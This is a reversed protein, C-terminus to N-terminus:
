AKCRWYRDGDNHDTLVICNNGAANTCRSFFPCEGVQERLKPSEKLGNEALAAILAQTYPHRPDELVEATNGSEMIFGKCLVIIKETAKAVEIDHTIIIKAAKPFVNNITQLFEEKSEKDLGNTPEDAIILQARSCAALAIVVKQAMGGSLEFPYKELIIQPELFGAIRLKEEATAKLEQKPIGIRKLSDYLQYKIKKSPSLCELGSQPIYVIKDGLLKNINKTYSLDTGCFKMMLGNEFINSPLTKMISCAIITKGSGTEGILALSDKEKLCFSVDQVLPKVSKDLRAKIQSVSYELVTNKM